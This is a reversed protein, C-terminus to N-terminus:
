EQNLNYTKVMLQVEPRNFMKHAEGVFPLGDSGPPFNKPRKWWSYFFAFILILSLLIAVGYNFLFSQLLM